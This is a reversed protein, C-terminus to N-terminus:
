AIAHAGTVDDEFCMSVLTMLGRHGWRGFRTHTGRPTVPIRVSQQKKSNMKCCCPANTDVSKEKGKRRAQTDRSAKTMAPFGERKRKTHGQVSADYSPVGENGKKEKEEKRRDRGRGGGQAVHKCVFSAKCHPETEDTEAGKM